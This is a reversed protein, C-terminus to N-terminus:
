APTISSSRTRFYLAGGSVFTPLLYPVKRSSERIDHCESLGRCHRSLSLARCILSFAPLRRRRPPFAGRKIM